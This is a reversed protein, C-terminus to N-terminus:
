CGVCCDANKEELWSDCHPSEREQERRGKRLELLQRDTVRRKKRIGLLRLNELVDQKDQTKTYAEGTLERFTTKAPSKFGKLMIKLKRQGLGKAIDNPNCLRIDITGDDDFGVRCWKGVVKWEGDIQQIALKSIKRDFFNYIESKTM